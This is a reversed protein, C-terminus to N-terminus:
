SMFTRIADAGERLPAIVSLPIGMFSYELFCFSLMGFVLVNFFFIEVIICIKGLFIM